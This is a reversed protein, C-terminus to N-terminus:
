NGGFSPPSQNIPLPVREITWVSASRVRIILDLTEESTQNVLLQPAPAGILQRVRLRGVGIASGFGSWDILRDIFDDGVNFTETLSCRPFIYQGPKFAVDCPL